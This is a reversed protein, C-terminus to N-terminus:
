RNYSIGTHRSGLGLPLGDHYVQWGRRTGEGREQWDILAERYDSELGSGEAAELGARLIKALERRSVPRDLSFRLRTGANVLDMGHRKMWQELASPEGGGLAGEREAAEQLADSAWSATERLPAVIEDAYQRTVEDAWQIIGNESDLLATLKDLLRYVSSTSRDAEDALVEYHKPGGDTLAIVLDEDAANFERGVLESRVIDQKAERLDPLPNPHLSIEERAGGVDFYPDDTNWVDAGAGVPVDAWHLANYATTDLDDIAAKLDYWPV